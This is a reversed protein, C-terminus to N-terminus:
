DDQPVPPRPSMEFPLKYSLYRRSFHYKVELTVSSAATSSRRIPSSNNLLALHQTKGAIATIFPWISSFCLRISNMSQLKTWIGFLHKCLSHTRQEKAWSIIRLCSCDFFVFFFFLLPLWLTQMREQISKFKWHASTAGRM